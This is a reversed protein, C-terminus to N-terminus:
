VNCYMGGNIHVTSGTTYGSLEDLALFLYTASLDEPHSPRNLPISKWINQKVEDSKDDHFSTEVYGPAVCNFRIGDGSYEKVWTKQASELWAKSAGYVSAGVGGGQCAANSSTFVVSAHSSKKLYPLAYKLSFLNSFVNIGMVHNYFEPTIDEVKARGGLGGAFNILVDIGSLFEAGKEVLQKCGNETTLDASVYLIKSGYLKEWDKILPLIKEGSSLGHIVLSGGYSAIKKALALGIGSTSGTILVKREKIKAFM